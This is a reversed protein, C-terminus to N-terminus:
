DAAIEFFELGIRWEKTCTRLVLRDDIHPVAPHFERYQLRDGVCESLAVFKEFPADTLHGLVGVDL